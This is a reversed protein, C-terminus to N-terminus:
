VNAIQKGPQMVRNVFGLPGLVTNWSAASSLCKPQALGYKQQFVVGIDRPEHLMMKFGCSKCRADIVCGGVDNGVGLTVWRRKEQEVDHNWSAVAEVDAAPKASM